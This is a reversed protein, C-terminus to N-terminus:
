FVAVNSPHSYLSFYTYMHNFENTKLGMVEVLDHWHLFKVQNNEFRMLYEKGKLRARIKNKDLESLGTFLDTSEIFAVIAITQLKENEFKEINEPSSLLTEFKQRYMLGAHVWMAHLILKEDITKTNRYILNFMATTEYINRISSAVITPDIIPNLSSGDQSVFSLGSILKELHLVKTLMMQMIIKAEADAQSYVAEFHNNKVTRFLFEAFINLIDTTDSLNRCFVLRECELRLEDKTM